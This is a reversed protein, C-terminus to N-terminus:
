HWHLVDDMPRRASLPVVAEPGAHGIALYTLMKESDPINGIAHGRADVDPHVCWNLCCSSLGQATLALQFSMLFLGGDLAPEIRETADFFSALDCTLVALLPVTHGFGRNGNQLALMKRIQDPDSYLHLKWPQRNCASPSLQAIRTATLVQERDVAQSTFNRTSRRALAIDQLRSLSDAPLATSVPIPTKLEKEVQAHIALYSGIRQSLTSAEEPQPDLSDLRDRYAQMVGVAAKFVTADKPFGAKEWRQMLSLTIRAPRAGFFPRADGPLCLGKELKHYQFILESSLRWYEPPRREWGVHQRERAMDMAYCKRRLRWHKLPRVVDDRLARVGPIKLATSKLTM